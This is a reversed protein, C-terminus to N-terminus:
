WAFRATATVTRPYGYYCWAASNCASVYEKDSLNQANVQLRWHGIDYHVSADFLTYSPTEWENYADGFHDGTYRVGAGFGLGALSGTTITYDGGLSASHKPQLPIQKGLARLDLTKTVESDLYAYAGYVSLGQGVNWRGELEAGRVKTEGVQFTRSINNPDVVPNNQQTLEYVAVTALVKGSAPQFKLGAEVQSGTTPDFARGQADTGVTPQFSQSYGIYPALGNDFLYNVGVRGSFEEDSQHRRGGANLTDTGVFDQRAGFTVVWKDIKIQDQAYLGIQRQTQYTKHEPRLVPRLNPLSGYVPNFADLPTGGSFDFNTYYTNEYRRFDIGALVNHQMRGKSFNWQLNNDVGFTQDEESTSWLYRYLHRLDGSWGFAGVVVNPDIESKALRVSQNFSTGGGFDHSFEYGISKLTKVYDNANPEGTFLSASIKGNPNPRLTGEVPLFGAGAKTDAKQYRALVTLQNADDPKWTLAPAFYYRDDHIYDIPSDSNRALGTLRYLLTGSDNLKGGFDFALQRLDDSGVTAEIERLTDETPRKSVYNLMGGPPMAGYNVSAPGKLVEVQELGYPEIRTIGTGTGEALALGDLYRAPAFGRVLLWDSRTDFGYGGGQAGATYWVAQEIGTIGRDSMQRSTIVSVSQPIERIPTDTKTATGSSRAIPALVQVADLDKADTVPADAAHASSMLLSAALAAHVALFLPRAAPRRGPSKLSM